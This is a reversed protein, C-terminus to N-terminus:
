CYSSTIASFLISKTKDRLRESIRQKGAISKASEKSMLAYGATEHHSHIRNPYYSGKNYTVPMAIYDGKDMLEKLYAENIPKTAEIYSVGTVTHTPQRHKTHLIVVSSMAQAQKILSTNM